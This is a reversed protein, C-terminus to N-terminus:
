LSFDTEISFYEIVKTKMKQAFLLGFCSLLILECLLLFIGIDGQMRAPIHVKQSYNPIQFFM